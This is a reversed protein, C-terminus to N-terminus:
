SVVLRLADAAIEHAAAPRALRGAAARLAALRPRDALLAGVREGLLPVDNVKIAAGSELLYDSNRTEQGPIPNMIVLPLECALCEAVTLGGPKSVVLDAARMWEHVKDTFGIVRVPRRAAAAQRTLRQRLPENRGAIAAIQVEESLTCLQALLAETPGVGFGGCLLLVVPAAPDLACRRCAEDRGLPTQFGARVPIGTVAIREPAVGWTTLLARGGDTATYYREVPEHVWMRHTDYDTTVTAHPCALRGQQRLRAVIEASLYHTHVILRPRRARLWQDIPGTFCNQIALRLRDAPRGPPCDLADYLWGMGTPFHRVLALYGGAYLRRFPARALTLVDHVEVVAAPAQQRLADAVAQAAIMHGGGASASLVLILHQDAM